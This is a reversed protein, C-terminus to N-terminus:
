RPSDPFGLLNIDNKYMDRLRHILVDPINQYYHRYDVFSSRQEVARISNTRITQLFSSMNGKLETSQLMHATEENM